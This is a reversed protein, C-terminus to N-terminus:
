VDVFSDRQSAILRPSPECKCVCLDDSLASQRGDPGTMSHGPGVCVIRGMTKCAPCWVPAGEYAQERNGIADLPDGVAVTGDKTTREGKVIDFRKAM